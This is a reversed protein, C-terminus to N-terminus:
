EGPRFPLVRVEPNMLNGNLALALLVRYAGPRLRGALDVVLRGNQVDRSTGAAAVEDTSGVVAWHVTLPERTKESAPQPRFPERVIKYSREFKEISEVDAQIELREGKRDIARVHARLPIPYQDFSGVGLPYSFDRFVPLTAEDAALKGLQYPGATVLYHGHSRAFERLAAWRRRAQEPTVLARLPEPVFARKELEAVLRGFAARQRPDRALDLWPIKRQQAASESFAGIGRAVAQEMLVLVQWPVPSWPPAISVAARADPASKLYVEVTPVDYMLQMDGLEKVEKDVSVVRVAALTRRALASAREVEPDREREPGTAAGWHLAFAYPYVVDAATMPQGDHSKSLLVRYVVKIRAPMPAGAPRLTAPLLADAPAESIESLAQPRARNPVFRANDPDLLLAPDGVAAWVLRGAADGFGAVPNWAARPRGDVAVRLWGNWPFDKLKATRVFIPSGLGEHADAAINEIGESYEVNVPERRVTYGLVVRECGASVQSVIRRELSLREAATLASGDTRRVFAEAAAKRAAPSQLLWAHFWGEKLWPPGVWGNLRTEAGALLAPLEVEEVFADAGRPLGAAALADGLAGDARVRPAMGVTRERAQQALDAHFVFDEHLPTVPYPHVVFPPRAGALTRAVQAAAACRTEPKAFIGAAPLTLVVYGRLSEMWRVHAPAAAGAFPDSGVWAHIKNQRLLTAAAAPTTFRVAIEQPYYSPYFTIEHGARAPAALLLLVCLAAAAFANVFPRLPGPTRGVGKPSM